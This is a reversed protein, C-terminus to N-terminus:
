KQLLTHQSFFIHLSEKKREIYAEIYIVTLLSVLQLLVPVGPDALFNSFFDDSCRFKSFFVFLFLSFLGKQGSPKLQDLSQRVILLGTKSTRYKFDSLKALGINRKNKRLGIAIPINCNQRFHGGRHLDEGSVSFVIPIPEGRM